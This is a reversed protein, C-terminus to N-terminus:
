WKDLVELNKIQDKAILKNIEKDLKKKEEIKEIFNNPINYEERIKDAITKWQNKSLSKVENCDNLKFYDIAYWELKHGGAQHRFCYWAQKKVDVSVNLRTNSGHIPHPGSGEFGVMSQLSPLVNVLDNWDSDNLNIKPNTNTVTKKEKTNIVKKVSLQLKEGLKYIIQIAKECSYSPILINKILEYEVGSPHFSGPGVAYSGEGRIDIGFLEKEDTERERFEYRDIDKTTKDFFYFHKGHSTKVTLTEPIMKEFINAFEKQDVDIIYLNNSIEGCIIAINYKTSLTFYKHRLYLPFREKQYKKWKILGKPDKSKENLPFYNIQYNDIIKFTETFNTM